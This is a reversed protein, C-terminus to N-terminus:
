IQKDRRKQKGSLEHFIGGFNIEPTGSVGM